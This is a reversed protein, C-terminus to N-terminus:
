SFVCMGNVELTVEPGVRIFGTVQVNGQIEVKTVIKKDMEITLNPDLATPTFNSVRVGLNRITLAKPNDYSFTLSGSASVSTQLEFYAVPQM